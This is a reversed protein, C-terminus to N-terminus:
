PIRAVPKTRVVRFVADISSTGALSTLMLIGTIPDGARSAVSWRSVSMTADGTLVGEFKWGATRIQSSFHEFLADVSITTDLRSRGETDDVGGMGGGGSSRVGPPLDLDRVPVDSFM